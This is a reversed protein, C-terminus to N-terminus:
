QQMSSIPSAIKSQHIMIKPQHIQVIKSIIPHLITEIQNNHNQHYPPISNSHLKMEFEFSVQRIFNFERHYINMHLNQLMIQQMTRYGMVTSWQFKIGDMLMMLVGQAWLCKLELLFDFCTCKFFWRDFRNKQALVRKNLVLSWHM